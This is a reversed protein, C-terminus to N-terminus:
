DRPPAAPRVTWRAVTVLEGRFDMGVGRLRETVGQVGRAHYIWSVPTDNALVQQIAHWAARAQEEGAAEQVRVFASDLRPTHYGAYDLAGGTMRADFMGAVHSLALDGPIGALLADFRKPSGRAATLFAGFEALQLEMGIGRERLDAQLLQEIANDGSGVTLLTFRFPQGNKVRRGDAGRRWGADDLLREAEDASLRTGPLHYPHDEPVAGTAPTGFGALAVDIVRRRDILGDVARRVRPDDFPPRVANFVLATSFLVPYSLVRLSPDADVLTAMTPSIGALDLDGSVLGAFKTTPEDVVAIVLKTISAPGGLAAPFDAVREFVWRRGPERSVFRFPGNGVPDFSFAHRRMAERPVAALIHSPVVPLESFLLPFTPPPVRFRIRLTSDDSAEILDMAGFEAARAFGTAPDRAADFTFAVDRATTPAGDHWRLGTHLRFILEQRDGSWEWARALYPQATLTSDLRTLTVFLAHRQVQRALPHVTVLPNASELDAGSAVVVTERGPPPAVCAAALALATWWPVGRARPTSARPRM